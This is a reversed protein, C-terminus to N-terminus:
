RLYLHLYFKANDKNDKALNDLIIGLGSTLVCCCMCCGIHLRRGIANSEQLDWEIHSRKGGFGELSM